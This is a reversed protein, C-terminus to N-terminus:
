WSDLIRKWNKRKRQAPFGSRSYAESSNISWARNVEIDLFLTLPIKRRSRLIPYVRAHGSPAGRTFWILVFGLFNRIKLKNNIFCRYKRWSGVPFFFHRLCQDQYRKEWFHVEWMNQRQYFKRIEHLALPFLNKKWWSLHNIAFQLSYLGVESGSLFKSYLLTLCLWKNAWITWGRMFRTFLSEQLSIYQIYLCINGRFDVHSKAITHKIGPLMEVM